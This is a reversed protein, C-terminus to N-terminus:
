GFLDSGQCAQAEDFADKLDQSVQDEIGEFESNIDEFASNMEDNIQTAAADFAEPSDTPLQEASALADEYIAKSQEFTAILADHVAAGNEADPEGLDNLDGIIEDTEAVVDELYSVLATKGEEASAGEDLGGLEQGGATIATLWETTATCVGEAYEAPATGGGGCAAMTVAAVALTAFM